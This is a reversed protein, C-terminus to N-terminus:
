QGDRPCPRDLDVQTEESYFAHRTWRAESVGLINLNYRRMESNIQALKGAEFMAQVHWFGFLLKTKTNLAWKKAGGVERLSEDSTTM